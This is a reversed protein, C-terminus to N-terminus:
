LCRQLWLRVDLPWSVGIRLLRVEALVAIVFACSILAIAAYCVKPGCISTTNAAPKDLAGYPPRYYPAHQQQQQQPAKASGASANRTAAADPSKSGGDSASAAGAKGDGDDSGGKGKGTGESGAGGSAPSPSKSKKSLLEVGSGNKRLPNSHAVMADGGSAFVSDPDEEDRKRREAKLLRHEEDQQRCLLSLLATLLHTTLM